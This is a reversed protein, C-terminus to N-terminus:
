EKNAAVLLLSLSTLLNLLCIVILVTGTTPTAIAQAGPTVLTNPALTEASTVIMVSESDSPADATPISRDLDLTNFALTPTLPMSLMDAFVQSAWDDPNNQMVSNRAPAM